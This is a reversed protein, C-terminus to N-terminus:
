GFFRQWKQITIFYAKEITNREHGILTGRCSGCETAVVDRALEIDGLMGAKVAKCSCCIPFVAPETRSKQVNGRWLGM